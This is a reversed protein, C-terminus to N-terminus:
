KAENRHQFLKVRQKDGVGTLMEKELISYIAPSVLGQNKAKFINV